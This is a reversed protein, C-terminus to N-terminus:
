KDEFGAARYLKRARDRDQDVIKGEEFMMALTTQSGALGQAAAKEFWKVAENGEKPVCDGEMYMFGLGHQALAHGQEAAARMWQSASEENRVVGLGNQLMIAVRYQADALGRQALPSLLHLAHTFHKSEFASIGSALDVSSEIDTQDPTTM